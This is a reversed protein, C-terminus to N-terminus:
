FKQYNKLRRTQKFSQRQNFKAERKVSTTSKFTIRRFIRIKIKPRRSISQSFNAEIAFNTIIFATENFTRRRDFM